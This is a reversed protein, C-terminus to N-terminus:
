GKLAKVFGYHGVQFDNSGFFARGEFVENIQGPLDIGLVRFPHGRQLLVNAPQQVGPPMREPLKGLAAQKQGSATRLCHAPDGADDVAM